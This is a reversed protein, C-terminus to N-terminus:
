LAYWSAGDWMYPRPPSSASVMFSGTPINTTPLPHHPTIALIPALGLSSSIHVSASPATIGVGISGTINVVSRQTGGFEWTQLLKSGTGATTAHTANVRLVTYGSGSTANQNANFEVKMPNQIGTIATGGMTVNFMDSQVTSGRNVSSVSGFAWATGNGEFRVSGGNATGTGQVDLDYGATPAVGTGAFWVVSGSRVNLINQSGSTIRLFENGSSASIHLLSLPNSTGIGVNGSSSISLHQNATGGAGLSFLSQSLGTTIQATGGNFPTRLTIAYNTDDRPIFIWQATEGANTGLIWEVTPTNVRNFLNHQRGASLSSSAFLIGVRNNTDVSTLLLPVNTNASGSADIHLRRQPSTTGIGVNGSGSVFLINQDTPSSVRLLNGNSAGSIHVVATTPFDIGPAGFSATLYGRVLNTFVNASAVFGTANISGAVDLTTTPTGTGIGVRGSGSVFLINNVSPSDIELLTNNNAGSIHLRAQPVFNGGISASNTARLNTATLSPTSISVNNTLTDNQLTPITTTAQIDLGGNARITLDNDTRIAIKGPNNLLDEGFFATRLGSNTGVHVQNWTRTSEGLTLNYTADTPSLNTTVYGNVALTTTDVTNGVSVNGTVDLDSGNFTLGAEGNITGGGTATLVRNNTNNTIAPAIDSTTSSTIALATVSTGDGKEVANSSTIQLLNQYSQNILQNGLDAM